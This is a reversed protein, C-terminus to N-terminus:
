ISFLLPYEPNFYILNIAISMQAKNMGSICVM